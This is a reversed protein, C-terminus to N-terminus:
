YDIKGRVGWFILTGTSLPTTRVGSCYLLKWRKGLRGYVGLRPLPTYPVLSQLGSSMEALEDYYEVRSESSAATSSAHKGAAM